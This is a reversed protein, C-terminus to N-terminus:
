REDAEQTKLRPEDSELEGQEALEEKTIKYFRTEAVDSSEAIIVTSGTIVWDIIYATKAMVCGEASQPAARSLAQPM